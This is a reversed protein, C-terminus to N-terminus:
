LNILIFCSCVFPAVYKRYSLTALFIAGLYFLAGWAVDYMFGALLVTPVLPVQQYKITAFIHIGIGPALTVLWFILPILPKIFNMTSAM